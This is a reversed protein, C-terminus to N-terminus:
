HEPTFGSAKVIPAWRATESATLRAIEEPSASVPRQGLQLLRERADEMRLVEAIERHLRAVTAAPTKAPAWFAFVPTVQAQEFGQELFTLVDPTTASRKAGSTAILRLRGGRHHEIYDTLPSVGTPIHGGILDTILPAGGKFPVHMMDIGASRVFLVGFLHPLSGAGPSGFAAQAPNARTWEVLEKLSRVNLSSAVALGYEFESVLAVPALDKVPDFGERPRILPEIAVSSVGALLLVSGDPPSAALAKAALFGGAGPKNEVIVAAGSAGRLKEAFVRAIADVTGGPPFGVLIRLESKGAQEPKGTQQAWAAGCLLAALAFLALTRAITTM